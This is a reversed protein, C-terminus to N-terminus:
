DDGGGLERSSKLPPAVKVEGTQEVTLRSGAASVDPVSFKRWWSM